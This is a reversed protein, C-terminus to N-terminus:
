WFPYVFTSIKLWACEENLHKVRGCRVVSTNRNTDICWCTWVRAEITSSVCNLPTSAFEKGENGALFVCLFGMMFMPLKVPSKIFIYDKMKVCGLIFGSSELLVM